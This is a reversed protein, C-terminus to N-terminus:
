ASVALHHHHHVNPIQVIMPPRTPKAFILLHYGSRLAPWLTVAGVLMGVQLGVVLYAVRKM